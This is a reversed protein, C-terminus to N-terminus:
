GGYTQRGAPQFMLNYGKVSPAEMTFSHRIQDALGKTLSDTYHAYAGKDVASAKLYADYYQQYKNQAYQIQPTARTGFTDNVFQGWARTPNDEYFEQETEDFYRYPRTNPDGNLWNQYPDPPPPPTPLPNVAANGARPDSADGTPYPVSPTGQPVKVPAGWGTGSTPLVAPQVSGPWPGPPKDRDARTADPLGPPVTGVGPPAQWPTATGTPLTWNVAYPTAFIRANQATIRSDPMAVGAPAQAQQNAALAEALTAQRIVGNAERTVWGYTRDYYTQM